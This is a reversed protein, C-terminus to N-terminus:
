IPLNTLKDNVLRFIGLPNEDKLEIPLLDNPWNQFSIPRLWRKISTTGVASFKPNTSSPYPGGHVMSSCVEVGTPVHNIIIRGVKDSLISILHSHESLEKKNGLITGTLQGNLNSIANELEEMDKCKVILSFPGFIEQQLSDNKIFDDGNVIAITQQAYNKNEIKSNCTTKEFVNERCIIAKRKVDYANKIKPNLMCKFSTKQVEQALKEIFFDFYKSDIGFILGPKTCFQGADTTISNAYIKSIEETKSALITPLVIVPNVSGMEAFVPIPVKRKSAIDFLSRGGEISGTFGIAKILSHKALIQGVEIGSSNLNSFVGNPMGTDKAAKIIASSILEGTGSRMPHSEIIVPCGAALASATDGGATSYALPFNSAGFVVVPGIPINMRRLDIKPLSIKQTNNKHISAEIWNGENLLKSFSHLQFITRTREKIAREKSLGTESCYTEILLNGINLIEEAIKNLFTSKKASSFTKFIRFADNALMVAENIEENSAEYFIHDNQKQLEPNYTKYTKKGQASLKFGVYNQGSISSNHFKYSAMEQLKHPM